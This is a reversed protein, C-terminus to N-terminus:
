ARLFLPASSFLVVWSYMEVGDDFLIFIKWYDLFMVKHCKKKFWTGWHSIPLKCHFVISTCCDRQICGKGKMMFVFWWVFSDGGLTATGQRPETCQTTQGSLLPTLLSVNATCPISVLMVFSHCSVVQNCLTLTDTLPLYGLLFSWTLVAYTIMPVFLLSLKHLKSLLMMFSIFFVSWYVAYM